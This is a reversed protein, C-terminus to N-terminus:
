PTKVPDSSLRRADVIEWKNSRALKFRWLEMATTATGTRMDKRALRVRVDIEAGANGAFRVDKIERAQYEWDIPNFTAFVGEYYTRDAGSIKPWVARIADMRRREVAAAFGDLVQFIEAAAAAEAAANAGGADGRGPPPPVVTNGGTTVPNAGGGAPPPPPPVLKAAAAADTKRGNAIQSRVDDLGPTGPAKGRIDGEIQEAENWRREKLAANLDAQRDQVWKRLADASTKTSTAGNDREQATRADDFSRTATEFSTLAQEPKTARAALAQREAAVGTTFEDRALAGPVKSAQVRAQETRRAAPDLIKTAIAQLGAHGPVLALGTQVERLANREQGRALSDQAAKLRQAVELTVSETHMTTLAATVDPHEPRFQELQAIAERPQGKAFRARAAAVAERALADIQTRLDALSTTVAPHAPQFATLRDLAEVRQGADFQKRAEAVAEAARSDREAASLAATWEGLKQTVLPHQPQVRELMAIAENTQGSAHLKEANEIATRAAQDPNPGTPGSRNGVLQMAGLVSLVIAIAAAATVILARSRIQRRAPAFETAAEPQFDTREIEVDVPDEGVDDAPPQSPELAPDSITQEYRPDVDPRPTRARADLEGKAQAQLALAGEHRPDLDLASDVLRMAAMLEGGQLRERAEHLLRSIEHRRYDLAAAARRGNEVADTLERVEPDDPALARAREVLAAAEGVKGQELAVRATGLHMAAQQQRQRREDDRRREDQAQRLRVAEQEQALRATEQRAREEEFARQREAAEQQQQLRLEEQHQARRLEEERRRREEEERRRRFEEREAEIAAIADVVFPHPPDFARLRALAEDFDELLVLRRAQAVTDQAAQEHEQERRRADIAAQIEDRLANADDHAPDYALAESVSRLAADLAGADLNGRARQVAMRLARDREAIREKERRRDRIQQRLKLADPHDPRLKLSQEVLSEAGTLADRSLEGRAEALWGDVRADELGRHAGSLMELARAEQPNLVLAHECQEIVAEYQGAELHRGAASLHAEIQAARREAIAGLNPIGSPGSRPTRGGSGELRGPTTEADPSSRSGPLPDEAVDRLRARIRELDSGLVALNQYRKNRDKEVGKHVIAELEPDITPLLNRIATPQKHIIDHLVVHSSDGPFAKRYTLLEYLVLGVAFIDSRHDVPTGDIQEPSMYFPTGMLAGHRTLGTSTLEATVRALGFDLIKLTGEATIMLNAPKIDRHVIGSRHAYGLGSCLEGMLQLKRTITLQARRRIMEGLTEGDLFEMAIFPRGQDEGIDYITVIHNHKLAAVSRAERAFRERLEDSSSDGVSLIKIAVTRQLRPDTALYVVGMGGEGLRDRVEYRGIRAPLSPM